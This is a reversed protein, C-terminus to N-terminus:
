DINVNAPNIGFYLIKSSVYVKVSYSYYSSKNSNIDVIAARVHCWWFVCM